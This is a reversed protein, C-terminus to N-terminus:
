KEEDLFDSFLDKSFDISHLVDSVGAEDLVKLASKEADLMKELLQVTDGGVAHYGTLIPMIAKAGYDSLQDLGESEKAKQFAQAFRDALLAQQLVHM